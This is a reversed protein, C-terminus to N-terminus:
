PPLAVSNCASSTVAITRSPVLLCTPPCPIPTLHLTTELCRPVGQRRASSVLPSLVGCYPFSSLPHATRGKVGQGVEGGRAEGRWGGGLGRRTGQRRRGVVVVEAALVVDDEGVGGRPKERALAPLMEITCSRWRSRLIEGSRRQARARLLNRPSLACEM